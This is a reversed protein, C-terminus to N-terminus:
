TVRPLACLEEFEGESESLELLSKVSNPSANALEIHPLVQYLLSERRQALDHKVWRLAAEVM